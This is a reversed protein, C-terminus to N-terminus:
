IGQTAAPTAVPQPAVGAKELVHRAVHIPLGAGVALTILDSPRGDIRHSGKATKLTLKGHFTNDRLDDVEVRVVKAKLRLLVTELLDHTLPRPARSGSLRMQIAQAERQGIWIELLRGGGDVQLRVVYSGRVFKVDRVTMKVEDRGTTVGGQVGAPALLLVLVMVWRRVM